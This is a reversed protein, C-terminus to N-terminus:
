ESECLKTAAVIFFDTQSNTLTYQHNVVNEYGPPIRTEKSAKFTMFRGGPKLMKYALNSDRLFEGFARCCVVDMHSLFVNGVKEPLIHINSISLERILQNALSTKKHQTEIAFINIEPCVIALPISPLGIGAGMDALKNVNGLFPVLQISDVIHRDWVLATNSKSVLNLNTSWKQLIQELKRLKNTVGPELSEPNFLLEPM